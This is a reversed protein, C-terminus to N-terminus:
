SCISFENSFRVKAEVVSNRFMRPEKFLSTTILPADGEAECGAQCQTPLTPASTTASRSPFPYHYRIELQATDDPSEAFVVTAPLMEKHPFRIM